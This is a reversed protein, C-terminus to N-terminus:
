IPLAVDDCWFVPMGRMTRSDFKNKENPPWISWLDRSILAGKSRQEIFLFVFFFGFCVKILNHFFFIVCYLKFERLCLKRSTLLPTGDASPDLIRRLVSVGVIYLM